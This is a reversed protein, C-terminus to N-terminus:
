PNLGGRGVVTVGVMSLTKRGAILAIITLVPNGSAGLFCRMLFPICNITKV